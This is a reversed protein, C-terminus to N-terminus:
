HCLCELLIRNLVDTDEGDYLATGYRFVTPKLKVLDAVKPEARFVVEADLGTPSIRLRRGDMARWSTEWGSLPVSVSVVEGGGLFLEFVGSEPVRATQRVTCRVLARDAFEQVKLIATRLLSQLLADRSHDPVSAYQKFEELFNACFNEELEIYEISVM